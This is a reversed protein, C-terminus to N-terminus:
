TQAFYQPYQRMIAEKDIQYRTLHKHMRQKAAAADGRLVADFIARHDEVLKLERATFLALARVRDFHVTISNMLKHVELLNTAAFLGRHFADDLELFRRPNGQQNLAQLHLNEELAMREEAQIGQQCCREVMASELTERMFQAEEVLDYDLLTVMSGRQPLVQLLKLEALKIFAERVPTRSLGMQAALENESILSGPALELSIIKDRLTRLAYARATEQTDSAALSIGRRRQRM